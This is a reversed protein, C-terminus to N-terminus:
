CYPPNVTATACAYVRMACVRVPCVLISEEVACVDLETSTGADARGPPPSPGQGPREAERAALGAKLSRIQEQQNKVVPSLRRVTDVLEAADQRSADYSKQYATFKRAANTVNSVLQILTDQLQEAPQAELGPGAHQLLLAHLGATAAHLHSHVAEGGGGSSSRVSAGAAQRGDGDGDGATDARAPGRGIAGGRPDM